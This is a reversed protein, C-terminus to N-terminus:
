SRGRLASRATVLVWAIFTVGVVTLLVPLAESAGPAAIARPDRSDLLISAAALGLVANRAVVTKADRTKSRGFCGCPLRSGALKQARLTALSFTALLATAVLAAARAEGILLLVPVAGEVLPVLLVAPKTAIGPGYRAVAASWARRNLAKAIAAWGFVLALLAGTLQALLDPMFVM